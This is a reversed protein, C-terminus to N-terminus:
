CASLTHQHVLNSSNHINMSPFPGLGACLGPARTAPPNASNWALVDGWEVLLNPKSILPPPVWTSKPTPVTSQELFPTCLHTPSLVMSSTCQLLPIIEPPSGSSLGSYNALLCPPLSLTIQLLSAPPGKKNLGICRDGHSVQAPSTLRLPRERGAM